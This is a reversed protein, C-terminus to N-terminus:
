GRHHYPSGVRIQVARYLQEILVVRAVAHNLVLDSLRLTRWAHERVTPDLGYPGGIV